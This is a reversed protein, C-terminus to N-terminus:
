APSGPGTTPSVIASTLGFGVVVGRTLGGGTRVQGPLGSALTANGTARLVSARCGRSAPMRGPATMSVTQSRVETSAVTSCLSGASVSRSASGAVTM